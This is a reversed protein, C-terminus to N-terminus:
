ARCSPLFAPHAIAFLEFALALNRLLRGNKNPTAGCANEVCRSSEIGHSIPCVGCIRQAIQVADFPNRGILIQEFGRFMDGRVRASKVVGADLDLEISLHGEIRSIPDIVIKSM